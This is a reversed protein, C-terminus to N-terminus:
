WGTPSGDIALLPLVLLGVEPGGVDPDLSECLTLAVPGLEDAIVRELPMSKM